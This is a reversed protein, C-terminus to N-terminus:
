SKPLCIHGQLPMMGGKIWETVDFCPCDKLWETREVKGNGNLDPSYDRHGLVKIGMERYANIAGEASIITKGQISGALGIIYQRLGMWQEVTFKEHGALCVGISFQNNGFVHAGIEELHRGSHVVGDVSIFAHYGISPLQPNYVKVYQKARKFGRAKHMRDIDEVTDPRGNPTDAVHIIVHKILRKM